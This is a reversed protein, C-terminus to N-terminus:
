RYILRELALFFGTSDLLRNCHGSVICYNTEFPSKHHVLHARRSVALGSDQLANACAPADRKTFHAWKHLEQACMIFSMSVAGFILAHVNNVLLVFGLLAPM